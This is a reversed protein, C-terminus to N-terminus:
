RALLVLVAVIAAIVLAIVFVAARGMAVTSRREREITPHSPAIVPAAVVSLMETPVSATTRVIPTATPRVYGLTASPGYLRGAAVPIVYGARAELTKKIRLDQRAEDDLQPAVDRALDRPVYGLEEGDDTHVLIANGDYANDPERELWVRDGETCYECADKREQAKSVGAIMFDLYDLPRNLEREMKRQLGRKPRGSKKELHPEVSV